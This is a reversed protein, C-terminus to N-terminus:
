QQYEVFAKVIQELNEKIDISIICLLSFAANRSKKSKCKPFHTGTSFLKANSEEPQSSATILGGILETKLFNKYEAAYLKYEPFRTLIAEILGYSGILFFDVDKEQEEFSIHSITMDILIELITKIKFLPIGDASVLAELQIIQSLSTNKILNTCLTFYWRSKLGSNSVKKLLDTLLLPLFIKISGLYWNGSCMSEINKVIVKKIVENKTCILGEYIVEKFRKYKAIQEVIFGQKDPWGNWQIIRFANDIAEAENSNSEKQAEEDDIIDTKACDDQSPM